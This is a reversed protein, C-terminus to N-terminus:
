GIEATISVTPPTVVILALARAPVTVTATGSIAGDTATVTFTGAPCGTYLGTADITGGDASWVPSIPVVNGNPHYGLATYSVNQGAAINATPPFMEIRALAGLTVNVLATDFLLGDTATVTWTGVSWPTFLGTGSVTGNPVSWVPSVPVLNGFSDYGTATFQQTQDATIDAFPPDVVLSVAPCPTVTVSANGSVGSDNAYVTWTGAVTSTYLGTVNVSGVDAAWVPSIPVPNGGADYGAAAFQQSGGAPITATPPTVDIQFLPGQLVTVNTEAWRFGAYVRVFFTGITSSTYLGAADISGGTVVWELPDPPANGYPDLVTATYQVTQGANIVLDKPNIDVTHPGPTSLADDSYYIDGDWTTGGDHTNRSDCWTLRVVGWDDALATQYDGMFAVVLASADSVRREPTWTVGGDTSNVYYVELSTNLQFANHDTWMVHVVGDHDVDVSPWTQRHPDPFASTDVNVQVTTWSAGADHSYALHIDENATMIDFVLEQDGSWVIYLDQGTPGSAIVPMVASRAPCPCDFGGLAVYVPTSFTQGLDSSQRYWVDAPPPFTASPRPERWAVHLRGYRDTDVWATHGNDGSIRQAPSWTLGADLSTRVVTYYPSAGFYTWAVHVVGDGYATIWPKDDLGGSLGVDVGASWTQGGDISSMVFLSGDPPGRDFAICTLYLRGAAEAALVRAGGGPGAADKWRQSPLWTAGGDLSTSYGCMYGAETSHLDNWAAAIRGNMDVAMSVENQEGIGPDDSVLVNARFPADLPRPGGPPVSPSGTWPPLSPARVSEVQAMAPAGMVTVFVSAAVLVAMISVEGKGMSIGLATPSPPSLSYRGFNSFSRGPLCRGKRWAKSRGLDRGERRLRGRDGPPDDRRAPCSAAGDIGPGTWAAGGGAEKTSAVPPLPPDAGRRRPRHPDVM